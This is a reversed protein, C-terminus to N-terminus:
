MALRVDVLGGRYFAKYALNKNYNIEEEGSYKEIDGKCNNSYKYNDQKFEKPGRFPADEPMNKLANRLVKYVMDPNTDEVVWGYYVMIWFPKNKFSVILRGGYPEGGFFNDDLKWDGEEYKITTSGDVEKIWRKDDGGAYGAKNSEILFRKLSNKIKFNM